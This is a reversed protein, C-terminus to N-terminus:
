VLDSTPLTLHTYSVPIINGVKKIATPPNLHYLNSYVDNFGERSILEEWYLNKDEDRFQIHRKNPLKGNKQYFPM